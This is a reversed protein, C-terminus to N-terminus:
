YPYDSGAHDCYTAGSCGHRTPCVNKGFPISNSPMEREIGAAKDRLAEMDSEPVELEPTDFPHLFSDETETALINEINNEPSNFVDGTVEEIELGKEKLYNVIKNDENINILSLVDIVGSDATTESLFSESEGLGVANFDENVLGIPNSVISIESTEFTNDIYQTGTYQHEGGLLEADTDVANDPSVDSTVGETGENPLEENFLTDFLEDM